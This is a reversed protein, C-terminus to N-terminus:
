QALRPLLELVGEVPHLNGLTGIGKAVRARDALPQLLTMLSMRDLLALVYNTPTETVVFFRRAALKADRGPLAWTVPRLWRALAGGIEGSRLRLLTGDLDFLIAEIREVDLM